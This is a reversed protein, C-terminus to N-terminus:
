NTLAPSKYDGPRRNSDSLQSDKWLPLCKAAVADVNVKDVRISVQGGSPMADRSNIALNM